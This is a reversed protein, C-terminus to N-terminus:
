GGTSSGAIYDFYHAPFYHSPGVDQQPFELHPQKRSLGRSFRVPRRPRSKLPYVSNCALADNQKELTEIENM